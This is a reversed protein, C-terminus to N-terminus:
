MYYRKIASSWCCTEDTVSLELLVGPGEEEEWGRGKEEERIRGRLGSEGYTSGCSLVADSVGEWGAVSLLGGARDGGM